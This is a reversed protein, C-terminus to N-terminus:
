SGPYLNPLTPERDSLIKTFDSITLLEVKRKEVTRTIVERHFYINDAVTQELATLLEDNDSYSWPFTFAFWYTEDV